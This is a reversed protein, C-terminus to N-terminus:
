LKVNTQLSGALHKPKPSSPFTPFSLPSSPFSQKAPPAQSRLHHSASNTHASKSVRIANSSSVSKGTSANGTSHTNRELRSETSLHYQQIFKASASADSTPITSYLLSNSDDSSSSGSPAPFGPFSVHSPASLPFVYQDKDVISSSSRAYHRSSLFWLRPRLLPALALIGRDAQPILSNSQSDDSLQSPDDKHEINVPPLMLPATNASQSSFNSSESNSQQTISNNQATETNHQSYYLLKQKLTLPPRTHPDIVEAVHASRELATEPRSSSSSSSVTETSKHPTNTCDEGLLSLAEPLLEEIIEPPISADSSGENICESLKSLFRPDQTCKRQVLSHTIHDVARTWDKQQKTLADSESLDASNSSSSSSPPDLHLIPEEDKVTNQQTHQINQTHEIDDIEVGDATFIDDTLHTSLTSHTDTIFRERRLMAQHKQHRWRALPDSSPHQLVHAAGGCDCSPTNNYSNISSPPESLSYTPVSSLTDEAIGFLKVEVVPPLPILEDSSNIQEEKSLISDKADKEEEELMTEEKEDSQQEKTQTEKANIEKTKIHKVHIKKEWLYRQPIM